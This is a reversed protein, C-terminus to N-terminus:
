LHSGLNGQCTSAHGPMVLDLLVLSSFNWFAVKKKM